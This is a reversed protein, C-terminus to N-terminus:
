QNKKLIKFIKEDSFHKEATEINTIFMIGKEKGALVKILCDNPNLEISDIENSENELIEPAIPNDEIVQEPKDENRKM